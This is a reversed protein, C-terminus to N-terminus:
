LGVCRYKVQFNMTWLDQNTPINLQTFTLTKNINVNSNKPTTKQWYKKSMKFLKLYTINQAEFHFFIHM